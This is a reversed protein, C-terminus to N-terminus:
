ESEWIEEALLELQRVDLVIDKENPTTPARLFLKTFDITLPGGTVVPEQYNHIVVRQTLHIRDQVREWKEITIRPEQQGIVLTLVINVDLKAKDLWFRVDSNLKSQGETRAVELVMTSANRDHGRPPRKPTWECDARKRGRNGGGYPSSGLHTIAYGLGSPQLSDHLLLSFTRSAVEDAPSPPLKFLLLRSLPDFSVWLSFAIHSDDTTNEFDRTFTSEDIDTLLFWYSGSIESMEDFERLFDSRGTYPYRPICPDLDALFGEGCGRELCASAM